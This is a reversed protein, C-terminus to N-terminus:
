INNLTKDVYDYIEDIKEMVIDYYNIRVDNEYKQYESKCWYASKIGNILDEKDVRKKNALQYVIELKVKSNYFINFPKDNPEKVWEISYYISDVAKRQKAILKKSWHEIAEIRTMM